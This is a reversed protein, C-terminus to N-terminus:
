AHDEQNEDHGKETKYKGALLNKLITDASRKGLDKLLEPSLGANELESSADNLPETTSESSSRLCLFPLDRLATELETGELSVCVKRCEHTDNVVGELAARAEDDIRECLFLLYADKLRSSSGMKRREALATQAAAWSSLVDDAGEAFTIGVLGYESSFVAQLGAHRETETRALPQWGGRALLRSMKDTDDTM